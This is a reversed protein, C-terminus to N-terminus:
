KQEEKKYVWAYQNETDKITELAANAEDENTYKSYSVRKMGSITEGAMEGDYGKAKLEEAFANANEDNEFAGGIIYYETVIEVTAIETSKIEDTKPTIESSHLLGSLDVMSGVKTDKLVTNGAILFSFGFTIIALAAVMTNILVRKPSRKITVVEDLEIEEQEIAPRDAVITKTPKIREPTPIPKVEAKEEDKVVKKAKVPFLGYSETLYNARRSPIFQLKSDKNLFFTGVEKIDYNNISDLKGWIERVYEKITALADTYSIGTKEVIYNALLGDNNKLDRNFALSKSPPTIQETITNLYTGSPNAIIGGFDPIIVCDHKYILEAIYGAIEM